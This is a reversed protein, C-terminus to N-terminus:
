HLRQKLVDESQKPVLAVHLPNISANELFTDMEGSSWASTPTALLQDLSHASVSM